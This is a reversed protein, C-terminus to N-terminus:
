HKITSLPWVKCPIGETMTYILKLILCYSKLSSWDGNLEENLKENPM